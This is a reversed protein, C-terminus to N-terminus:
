LKLRAIAQLHGSEFDDIMSSNFIGLKRRFLKPLRSSTVHVPLVEHYIGWDKWFNRITRM